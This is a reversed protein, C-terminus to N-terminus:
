SACPQEDIVQCREYWVGTDFALWRCVGTKKYGGIRDEIWRDFGYAFRAPREAILDDFTADRWKPEPAPWQDVGKPWEIRNAIEAAIYTDGGFYIFGTSGKRLVRTAGPWLVKAAEYAQQPTITPVSM